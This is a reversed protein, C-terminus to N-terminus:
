PYFRSDYRWDPNKEYINIEPILPIDSAGIDYSHQFTMKILLVGFLFEIINRIAIPEVKM